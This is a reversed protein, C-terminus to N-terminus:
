VPGGDQDMLTVCLLGGRREVSYILDRGSANEVDVFRAGKTQLTARTGKYLADRLPLEPEEGPPVDLVTSRGCAKCEVLTQLRGQLRSQWPTANAPKACHPCPTM